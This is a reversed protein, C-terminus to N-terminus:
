DGVRIAIKGFQSSGGMRELADNMRSFDYEIDIVPKLQHTELFRLMGEFDEPSGMTSGFLRLQKWFVKFLDLQKPAGATAGYSVIRGGPAALEVLDSYGAGGAGDVILDVPGASEVLEQTWGQNKYNLGGRAGLGVAQDIKSESSSTVWVEAGKAVAFQLLFTAVGGGIGTVLVRENSQLGGQTFLARFATLGALPLAAAETWSLWSPKPFLQSVPACVEEAFVGESPMGLIHFEGSQAEMRPGWDLSPNIVVEKGIWQADSADGVDQVVGSGDSGLVVPTRIGPYLGQTIWYDRRNLAAAKVGIVASGPTAKLPARSELALPEKIERMVWANVTDGNWLEGWRELAL